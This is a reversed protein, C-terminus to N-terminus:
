VKMPIHQLLATSNNHFPLLLLLLSKGEFSHHPTRHNHTMSNLGLILYIYFSGDHPGINQKGLMKLRISGEGRFTVYNTGRVGLDFICALQILHIVTLVQKPM